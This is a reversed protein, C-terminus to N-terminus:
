KSSFYLLLIIIVVFLLLLFCGKKSFKKDNKLDDTLFAKNKYISIEVEDGVNISNKSTRVKYTRNNYLIEYVLLDVEYIRDDKEQSIGQAIKSIVKGKVKIGKKKTNIIFIFLLIIGIIVVIFIWSTIVSFIINDALLDVIFLVVVLSVLLIVTSFSSKVPPKRMVLNNDIIRAKNNELLEFEVVDGNKYNDKSYEYSYPVSNVIIEKGEDMYEIEFDFNYKEKKINKIKGNLKKM